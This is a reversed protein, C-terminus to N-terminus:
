RKKVAVLTLDDLQEDEKVNTYLVSTQDGSDVASSCYVEYQRFHKKLFSDITRDVRVIDTVVVSNDRYLRFVKEVCALALVADEVTGTCSSFDFEFKEEADPNHYKELCYIGRAFVAEIVANVRVTELQESEDGVRHNGHVAGPLLGPEACKYVDSATNRFKRTSEEIGDTYLFLVDGPKLMLKEVKFGGKMEVMFSPLPGAAPTEALTVTKQKKEAADYYHIINDGANCLYVEGSKTDLLCLMITAFKGKLGLSEIFDNIQTVLRDLSAGHTKWSWSEFYRRFLTAVVTMILAAPVGHGSADCKIIGYWREDLKKYDFYDGSVGSAGEYYGFFQVSPDELVATSLKNGAADTQLPLFTQQVVKGDMLLHEDLAAKVLGHMMENVTEGLRGIEDHSKIEIDRGALKEKNRTQGIMAVHAALRRIPRVIISAVVLSGLIGIGVAVLAVLLGTLMITTRAADVSHILNETSIRVIIIGRVYNQDTGQRFLVPKYFVYDTQSRDLRDSTYAPFSGSGQKSLSDLEATLRGTLETTIAAIEERRHVSEADTKLALSSGEANLTSINAAISGARTVASKNLVECRKVMEAITDGTLRSSGLVLSQSDIKAAIGADNTAWVYDPYITAGTASLGTITAYQAEELSATQGPLYSLELVNQSPLYARVGSSLSEMLVQVREELGHALTREQTRTMIVGLPVAVLLVIMLVLTTTFFVLKFKLGAGRKKLQASKEKREFPMSDGSLLALVEQRIVAAERASVVLARLAGICVFLALLCVAWVALVGTQVHYRYSDTVPILDPEYTYENQLKITGTESVTLVPGSFYLGRASHVLGIRYAGPELDAVTIGTIREDSVCRFEGKGASLVRDYPKKGDRDIYLATVTGDSLYGHGLVSLLLAGEATNKKSLAVIQTSPIYKNLQLTVIAPASINGASDVAAVSFTYLGNPSNAFSADTRNGQNYRPPLPPNSLESSYKERLADLLKKVVDDPLSLPHRPTEAVSRDVPAVYHLSWTYGAVDDDGPDPKWSLSFTNSVAFGSHDAAAPEIVPLAPPTTDRTYSLVAPSSWNGAYDAARVKFYWVGDSDAMGQIHLESPLRMLSEPPEDDANRTWIWSYGAIGSSDGPLIVRAATKEATSRIGATFSEAELRPPRVSRDRELIYIHPVRSKDADTQQWIFSLDAGSASIVPFVFTQNQTQGALPTETWLAGNKQAMYINETGKRSDFWVLSVGNDFRFFVPRHANGATNIEEPVGHVRGSPTLETVWIHASESTYFTREWALYCVGQDTYLVPRQNHYNYFPSESGQPLSDPGTVLVPPSWSHLNDTSVSAYVQYSLRTGNNYQTQFVVMDGGNVPTLCPLFPNVLSQAPGFPRLPSWHSGDASESFLLSFSENEGLAAFLIFGGAATRYVRPGVVPLSQQMIDQAAFSQGGDHSTYLSISKGSSLVAVVISDGSAAASFLDPVDAAYSFPGAIRRSDSWTGDSQLTMLSVSVLSAAANVEEYFIAQVSSGSVVVPFRSDAASLVRPSEWYYEGAGIRLPSCVLLLMVFLFNQLVPRIIKV